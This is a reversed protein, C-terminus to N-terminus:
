KTREQVGKGFADRKRMEAVTKNCGSVEEM